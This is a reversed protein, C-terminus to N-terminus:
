PLALRRVAARLDAPTEAVADAAALDARDDSESRYGVVTAGAATASAVGHASDEVAVCAAPDADLRAAAHEYIGPEPKGAGDLDAASVVAAFAEGLDFREVVLDIWEHPSSSVIAAPVGAGDLAALLDRLGPLLRVQEGYVAAAADDYLALFAERDVAVDYEATLHEYIERYNLGTIEAVAPPEGDVVAPLIAERERAVWYRESDVLVGDMDFLAADAPM